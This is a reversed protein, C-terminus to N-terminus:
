NPLSMSPDIGIALLKAFNAELNVVGWLLPPNPAEPIVLVLGQLALAITGLYIVRISGQAELM